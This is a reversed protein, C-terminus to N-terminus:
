GADSQVGRAPAGQSDGPPIVSGDPAHAHDHHHRYIALTQAARPGLLTRYASHAAVDEPTGACCVHQNLCLVTDSEAMVVHLDHSILLVGCNLRKRVDAILDYMAIEGNFDIGRVPEDLVLLDPKRLIARALLARQFEGGSLSQVPADILHAIAVEELAARIAAEGQRGTLTMLRRVSLPFTWDIALQQPVYGIRLGPARWVRGRDTRILGLIAKATTSKGGGNPGVLTVIEGRAIRLDIDRILWRGNRSVSVGSAEVLTAGPEAANGRPAVLSRATGTLRDRM